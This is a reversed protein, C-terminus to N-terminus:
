RKEPLQRRTIKRREGRQVSKRTESSTGRHPWGALLAQLTEMSLIGEYPRVIERTEQESIHKRLEKWVREMRPDTLLREAYSRGARSEPRHKAAIKRVGIPVWDPLDSNSLEGGKHM